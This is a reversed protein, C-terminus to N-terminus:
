EVSELIKLEDGIFVVVYKKVKDKDIREDLAYGNVQSIGEELKKKYESKDKKSLYKIEIIIQYDINGEIYIDAYGNYLEYEIRTDFISAKRLITKYLLEIYGENMHIFLRNSTNKLLKSVYNTIKDIRGTDVVENIASVEEENDRVIDAEELMKEFYSNYALRMCENPVKFIIDSTISSKGSITLYGFYYLLSIIDEKNFGAVLNFMSVLVSTIKNNDLIDSIIDKYFTNNQLKLLNEIKEYNVTINNDYLEEPINKNDDIYKKLFYMVLTGNFVKDEKTLNKSFLYGDYHELMINYIKDQEDSSIELESILKRVEEHTLGVMSNYKSELSIDTAINFGTTMSNLTVPCIGTAFFRDVVGNGKYEKIAAYFSKVFGNKTVVSEFLSTDGELVGNTFNDYEDVIIYLKHKLTKNEDKSDLMEKLKSLLSLLLLNPEKLETNIEFDFNYKSMFENISNLVKLNFMEKLESETMNLTTLGSFDFKLVYYNNKNPTPNDYVYTDKFLTEFDSSSNVDYYYYMMSTFLTKGFRGPRLYIVTKATEELKSLYMTKDVYYYKEEILEKYNSVGYPINKVKIV